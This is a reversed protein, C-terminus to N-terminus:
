VKINISIIANMFRSFISMNKKTGKKEWKEKRGKGRKDIPVKYGDISNGNNKISPM